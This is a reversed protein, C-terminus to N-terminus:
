VPQSYRLYHHQEILSNFLPEDPARRVQRVILPQLEALKVQLPSTDVEMAPPTEREVLWNRTVRRTPPLEILGERHLKLMLGRCVMDRLAGNAQVWNWERCLKRSLEWRSAEPHRSILEQIFQVDETSIVRHRHILAIEVSQM